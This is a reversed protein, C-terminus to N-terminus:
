EDKQDCHLIKLGQRIRFMEIMITFVTIISMISSFLSTTHISKPLFFSYILFLVLLSLLVTLYFLYNNYSCRFYRVIYLKNLLNESSPKLSYAGNSEMLIGKKSMRKLYYDAWYESPLMLCQVLEEPSIPRGMRILYLGISLEKEDLTTYCSM